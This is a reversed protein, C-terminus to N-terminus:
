QLKRSLCLRGATPTDDDAPHFLSVGTLSYLVGRRRRVLLLAELDVNETASTVRVDDLRGTSQSYRQLVVFVTDPLDVISEQCTCEHQQPVRVQKGDANLRM